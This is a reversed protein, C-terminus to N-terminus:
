LAPFYHPESFIEMGEAQWGREMIRRYIFRTLAHYLRHPQRRRRLIWSPPMVRGCASGVPKLRTMARVDTGAPKRFAAAEGLRQQRMHPGEVMAIEIRRLM